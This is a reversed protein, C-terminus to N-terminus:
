LGMTCKCVADPYTFASNTFIHKIYFDYAQISVCKYTHQLRENKKNQDQKTAGHLMYM